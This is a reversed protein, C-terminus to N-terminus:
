GKRWPKLRIGCILLAYTTQRRREVEAVEETANKEAEHSFIDLWEESHEDDKEAGEATLELAVAREAEPQFYHAMGSSM